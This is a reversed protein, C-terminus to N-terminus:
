NKKISKSFVKRTKHYVLRINGKIMMIFSLEKKIVCGAKSKRGQLLFQKLKLHRLKGKNCFFPKIVIFFTIFYM